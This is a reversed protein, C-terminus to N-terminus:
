NKREAFHQSAEKSRSNRNSQSIKFESLFMRIDCGGTWQIYMCHSRRPSARFIWVSDVERLLLFPFRTRIIGSCVDCHFRVDHPLRGDELVDGCARWCKRDRTESFVLKRIDACLVRRVSYLNGKQIDETFGCNRYLKYLLPDWM